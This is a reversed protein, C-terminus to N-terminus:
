KDCGECYVVPKGTKGSNSEFYARPHKGCLKGEYIRDNLENVCCQYDSPTDLANDIFKHERVHRDHCQECNCELRCKSEPPNQWRDYAADAGPTQFLRM